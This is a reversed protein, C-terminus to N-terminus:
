ECERYLTLNKTILMTERGHIIIGTVRKLSIINYLCERKAFLSHLSRLTLPVERDRFWLRLREESAMLGLTDCTFLFESVPPLISSIFCTYYISADQAQRPGALSLDVIPQHRLCHNTRVHTTHVVSVTRTYFKYDLYYLL